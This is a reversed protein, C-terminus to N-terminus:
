SRSCLMECFISFICAFVIGIALCIATYIIPQKLMFPKISQKFWNSSNQFIEEEDIIMLKTDIQKKWTNNEIGNPNIIKSETSLEPRDKKQLHKSEPNCEIMIMASLSLGIM